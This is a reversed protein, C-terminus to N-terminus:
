DAGNANKEIGFEAARGREELFMRETQTLRDGRRLKGNVIRDKFYKFSRLPDGVEVTHYVPLGVVLAAISLPVNEGAFFGGSEFEEAIQHYADFFDERAKKDIKVAFLFENFFRLKDPDVGKDGCVKEVLMVKQVIKRVKERNVHPLFRMYKIFKFPISMLFTFPLRIRLRSNIRVACNKALSCCSLCTIGENFSIGEPIDSLIRSDADIFVAAQHFELTKEIVTAKDLYISKHLPEYILSKVNNNSEFRSPDDTFVVFGRGKAHTELDKALRKACQVYEEGVAITVFCFDNCV